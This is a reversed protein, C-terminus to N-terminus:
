LFCFVCRGGFGKALQGAHAVVSSSGKLTLRDGFRQVVQGVSAVIAAEAASAAAASKFKYKALAMSGGVGFMPKNATFSSGSLATVSRTVSNSLSGM